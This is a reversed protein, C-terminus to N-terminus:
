VKVQACSLSGCQAKGEAGAEGLLLGLFPRLPYQGGGLQVAATHQASGGRQQSEAGPLDARGHVHQRLQCLGPQMLGSGGPLQPGEADGAVQGNEAAVAARFLRLAQQQAETQQFAAPEVRVQDIEAVLLALVLPGEEAPDTLDEGAEGKFGQDVAGAPHM